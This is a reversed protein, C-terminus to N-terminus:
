TQLVCCFSMSPSSSYKVREASGTSRVADYTDGATGGLVIVVGATGATALEARGAGTMGCPLDPM